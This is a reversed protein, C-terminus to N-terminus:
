EVSKKKWLGDVVEYPRLKAKIRSGRPKQIGHRWLKVKWESQGTIAAIQSDEIIGRDYHDLREQLDAVKNELKKIVGEHLELRKWEAARGVAVQLLFERKDDFWEKLYEKTVLKDSAGATEILQKKILLNVVESSSLGEREQFEKFAVAQEDGLYPAVRERNSPM